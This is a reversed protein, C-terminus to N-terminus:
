DFCILDEGEQMVMMGAREEVEELKHQNEKEYGAAAAKLANEQSRVRQEIPKNAAAAVQWATIRAVHDICHNVGTDNGSYGGDRGAFASNGRHGRGV